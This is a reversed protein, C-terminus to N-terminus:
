PLRAIELTCGHATPQASLVKWDRGEPDRLRDGPSVDSRGTVYADCRRDFSEGDEGRSSTEPRPYASVTAEGADAWGSRVDGRDELEARARVTWASAPASLPTM